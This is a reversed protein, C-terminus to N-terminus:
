THHMANFILIYIVPFTSLMMGILGPTLKHTNVQYKLNLIVYASSSMFGMLGCFIGLIIGFPIHSILYFATMLAALSGSVLSISGVIRTIKEM